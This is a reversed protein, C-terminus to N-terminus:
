ADSGGNRITHYWRRAHTRWSRRPIKGSAILAPVQPLQQPDIDNMVASPRITVMRNAEDHGVLVAAREFAERLLPARRNVSHADTALVACWGEGVLRESLTQVRRGFRGVLAGATVQLWSGSRVLAHFDDLGDQAWTLREPHTIVPIIGHSILEFVSEQFRPPRVHHSPELLLYRSGGLTPIRGDRVGALVDPVLHTDAGYHLALGIGADDLIRQLRAVRAIIDPGRNEYVGPYIHPTCFTTRIGDGFAIKAMEISTNLDPAGDDIAPLLHCHLDIVDHKNQRLKGNDCPTLAHPM